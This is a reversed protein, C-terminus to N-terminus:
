PVTNIRHNCVTCNCFTCSWFFLTDAKRWYVMSSCWGHTMQILFQLWGRRHENSHKLDFRKCCLCCLCTILETGEWYISLENALEDSLLINKVPTVPWSWPQQIRTRLPKECCITEIKKRGFNQLNWIKM